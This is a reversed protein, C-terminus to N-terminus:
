DGWDCEFANEPEPCSLDRIVNNCDHALKADKPKGIDALVHM